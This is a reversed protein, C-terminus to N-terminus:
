RGPIQQQKIKLFGDNSRNATTLLCVTLYKLRNCNYCPFGKCRLIKLKLYNEVKVSDSLYSCFYYIHVFCCTFMSVKIVFVIYKKLILKHPWISRRQRINRCPPHFEWLLVTQRCPFNGHLPFPRLSDNIM